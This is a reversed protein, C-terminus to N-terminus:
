LGCGYKRKLDNRIRKATDPGGGKLGLRLAEPAVSCALGRVTGCSPDIRPVAQAFSIGCKGEGARDSYEAVMLQELKPSGTIVIGQMLASLAEDMHGSQRFIDHIRGYADPFMPRADRCQLASHLAEDLRGLRQETESLMLYTSADAEANRAARDGRILGKEREDEQQAKLIALARLLLIRAREYKSASDPPARLSGDASKELLGSGWWIYQAATRLYISEQNLRDPLKDLIAISRENEALVTEFDAHDALLAQGLGTYVKFSLPSTRVAASFLTTNDRWDANRARTRVGFAATIALGLVVPAFPRAHMRECLYYLALILCIAFGVAPLYLFREAMIAGIPIVLNSTPLFTIFAFGTAFFATKNRRYLLGSAVTVAAVAMWAIWDSFGGDALPIQAYSYDASLRLPWVLLALYKAMVKIATLRGTWFGAYAIPNDVFPFRAPAASLIISRVLWLALLAPAMALCGFIFGRVRKRDWRTLEYLPVIGAVTVASEKCFVGVATTAALAALWAARRWGAAEASKLYMLLGGLVTMGAFLDARGVINTVSETLVPHVAWVSAILFAPWFDAERAWHYPAEAILRGALAFVLLVNGIHLLLNIWHYGAPRDENGLIAYNFLYSLTTIPRYLGSDDSGPWWYTHHFINALNEPTVKHVRSDDLVLTKNDFVFGSDISNRWALVAIIMLVAAALWLRARPTTLVPM